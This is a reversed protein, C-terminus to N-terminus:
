APCPPNSPASPVLRRCFTHFHFCVTLVRIDCVQCMGVGCRVRVGVGWVLCVKVPHKSEFLRDSCVPCNGSLSQEVCKHKNFLELSMCANCSMCHFSDM